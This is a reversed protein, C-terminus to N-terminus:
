ATKHFHLTSLLHQDVFRACANAAKAFITEEENYHRANRWIRDLEARFIDLTTYINGADLRKQM